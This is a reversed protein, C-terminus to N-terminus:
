VVSKRDLDQERQALEIDAIAAVNVVADPKEAKVAEDVAHEDAIDVEVWGFDGMKEKIRRDCLVVEHGQTGAVTALNGGVFGGGGFIMMKM